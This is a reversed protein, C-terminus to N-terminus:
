PQHETEVKTAEQQEIEFITGGPSRLYAAPGEAFEVIEGLIEGGALETAVVAARIDTVLFATHGVGVHVPLSPDLGAPVGYVQILEMRTQLSDNWLQVLDCHLEPIGVTRQFLDGMGEVRFEETFGLHETYFSVSARIDAVVLGHHHIGRVLPALSTQVNTTM